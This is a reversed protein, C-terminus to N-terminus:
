PRVLLIDDEDEDDLEDYLETKRREAYYARIWEVFRPGDKGLMKKCKAYMIGREVKYKKEDMMVRDYFRAVSRIAKALDTPSWRLVDLAKANSVPGRVIEPYLVVSKNPEGM